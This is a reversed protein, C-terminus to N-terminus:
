SCNWDEFLNYTYIENYVGENVSTNVCSFNEPKITDRMEELFKVISSSIDTTQIFDVVLKTCGQQLLTNFEDKAPKIYRREFPGTIALKAVGNSFTFFRM